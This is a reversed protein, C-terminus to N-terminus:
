KRDGTVSGMSTDRNVGLVSCCQAMRNKISKESHGSNNYKNVSVHILKFRDASLRTLLMEWHANEM